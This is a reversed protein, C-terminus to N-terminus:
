IVKTAFKNNNSRTGVQPYIHATQVGEVLVVIINNVDLQKCWYINMLWCKVMFM